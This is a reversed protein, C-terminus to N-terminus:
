KPSLTDVFALSLALWDALQEDTRVAEPEVYLFGRMPRGTFDMIRTGPRGVLEDHREPGVRAMLAEGQIGAFM